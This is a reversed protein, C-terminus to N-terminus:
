NREPCNSITCQSCRPSDSCIETFMYLTAYGEIPMYGEARSQRNIFDFVANPSKKQGPLRWRTLVNDIQHQHTHFDKFGLSDLLSRVNNNGIYYFQNVLDELMNDSTDLWSRLSGHKKILQMAAASNDLLAKVKKSNDCAKPLRSKSWGPFFKNLTPNFWLMAKKIDPWIKKASQIQYGSLLVTWSINHLITQDNMNKYCNKIMDLIFANANPNNELVCGKCQSLPNATHM